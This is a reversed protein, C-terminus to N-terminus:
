PLDHGVEHARYRELAARWTPSLLTENGAHIPRYYGCLRCFTQYKEIMAAETVDALSTVAQDLGFVRDIARAVACPYFGAFNMAIGCHSSVSCGEYRHSAAWEQDIDVPAICPAIFDPQVPSTKRSNLVHLWPFASALESLRRSTREGHGHTALTLRLDPNHAARYDAIRNIIADLNPHTTPEGGVLFWDRWPYELHISDTILTDIQALTINQEPRGPDLDTMRNCNHCNMGCVYTIDLELWDMRPRVM